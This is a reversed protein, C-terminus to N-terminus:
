QAARKEEQERKAKKEAYSLKKNCEDVNEFKRPKAVPALL